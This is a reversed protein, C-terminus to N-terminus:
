LAPPISTKTKDPTAIDANKLENIEAIFNIASGSSLSGSITYQSIPEKAEMFASLNSM